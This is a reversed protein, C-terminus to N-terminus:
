SPCPFQSNNNSSTRLQWDRHRVATLNVYTNIDFATADDNLYTRNFLLEHMCDVAIPDDPLWLKNVFLERRRVIYPLDSSSLLCVKNRWRGNCPHVSNKWIVFRTIHMKYKKVTFCRGPYTGPLNLHENHNLTSWFLEDGFSSNRLYELLKRVSVSGKFLKLNEPPPGRSVGTKKEVGEPAGDANLLPKWIMEIRQPDFSTLQVDNAGNHLRMIRVIEANSRLPFDHNQLIILYRWPNTVKNRQELQYLEEICELFAEVTDITARSIPFSRRSVAVNPFCRALREVAAHILHSAKLDVHFCYLNQPAYIANLLIEIQELHQNVLVVYALPFAEEEATRPVSPYYHRVFLKSCDGFLRYSEYETMISRKDGMAALIERTDNSFIKRCDFAHNKVFFAESSKNQVLLQDEPKLHHLGIFIMSVSLFIFSTTRCKNWDVIFPASDSFSPDSDVDLAYPNISKHLEM